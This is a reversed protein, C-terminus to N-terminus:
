PSPPSDSCNIFLIYVVCIEGGVNLETTQREYSIWHTLRIIIWLSQKFIRQIIWLSDECSVGFLGDGHTHVKQEGELMVEGMLVNGWSYFVIYYYLAIRYGHKYHRTGTLHRIYLFIKMYKHFHVFLPWIITECQWLWLSCHVWAATMSSRQHARLQIGPSISLLFWMVVHHWFVTPRALHSWLRNQPWHLSSQLPEITSVKEIM